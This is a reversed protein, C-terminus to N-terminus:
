NGIVFYWSLLSSKFTHEALFLKQQPLMNVGEQPIRRAKLSVVESESRLDQIGKKVEPM